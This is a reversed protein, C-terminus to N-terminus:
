FSPVIEEGFLSESGEGLLLLRIPFFVRKNKITAPKTITAATTVSDTKNVRPFLLFVALKVEVGAIVPLILYVDETYM